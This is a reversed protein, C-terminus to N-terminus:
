GDKFSVQVVFSIGTFVNTKLSLQSKKKVQGYSELFLKKQFKELNNETYNV